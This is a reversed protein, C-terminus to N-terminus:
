PCVEAPLPDERIPRAPECRRGGPVRSIVHHYKGSDACAIDEVLRVRVPVAGHTSQQIGTTVQRVLEAQAGAPMAAKGGGDGAGVTPRRDPAAAVLEVDLAHDERQTIRFRRVNPQERIVYILSLAHLTTGDPLYIFDTQRGEVAELMPLGRGCPCRGRCLRARDGTRYRIFPMGFSGLHTVVVEGSEGPPAPKDGDLIEVYVHESIVHMSGLDCEHAIFGADRSGYGDAVPVGFYSAVAERQHPYCVEGTVFVAALRPRAVVRGRRRAHEVLHHISSPYGFICAPRYREIQDLYADMTAASMNFADLLRHNFLRDRWRKVRDARGHEIPSGWVWLERDGPWVGFWRRTHFRAAQDCAQRFRDVYFSLPQGTSGGTNLPHLGGRVGRWVLEDARRRVDDRTLPPLAQLSAVPDEAHPDVGAERMQRRYWPVHNYAHILLERLRKRQTARVRAPSQWQGEELRRALALTPRALIREHIPIVLLRALCPIV